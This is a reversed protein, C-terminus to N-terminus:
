VEESPKDIPVLNIKIDIELARCVDMLTGFRVSLDGNEIATITNRSVGAKKGLESTTMKKRRRAIHIFEFITIAPNM